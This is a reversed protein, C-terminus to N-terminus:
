EEVCYGASNKVHLEPCSGLVCQNTEDDRIYSDACALLEVCYGTSNKVYNEACKSGGDPVYGTVFFEKLLSYTALTNDSDFYKKALVEFTYASSTDANAPIYLSDSFHGFQSTFGEFTMLIQGQPDTITGSLSAGAIRGNNSYYDLRQNMTPDFVKVDFVFNTMQPIKDPIQSVIVIEEESVKIEPPIINDAARTSDSRADWYEDLINQGVDEPEDDITPTIEQINVVNATFREFGNSTLVVLKYKSDTELHAWVVIGSDTNRLLFGGSNYDRIKSEFHHSVGEDTEYIIISEKGDKAIFITNEKNEGQITLLEAQVTPLIAISLIAVIVVLGITTKEMKEGGIGM